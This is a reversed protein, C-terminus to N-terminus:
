ETADLRSLAGPWDLIHQDATILRHGALATAVIVRDAPEGPLDRLLGARTAIEGDMPIEVLGDRLLGERWSAIDRLLTLRRKEHLMAVEWFTIASIAVEGDRVAREIVGRARRGLNGYGFREWLLVHTDLLIV